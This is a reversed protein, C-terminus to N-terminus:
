WESQYMPILCSVLGVGLGAFVRGVVQPPAHVFHFLLFRTFSVFLPIAKAGTQM